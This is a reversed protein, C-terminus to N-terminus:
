SRENLLEQLHAPSTAVAEAGAALLEDTTHYGWDVGLGCVGAAKAM